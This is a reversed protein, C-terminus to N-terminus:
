QDFIAPDLNFTKIAHKLIDRTFEQRVTWRHGDTKLVITGWSAYTMWSCGEKKLQKQEAKTRDSGNTFFVFAPSVERLFAENATNLGHHPFKMIDADLDYLEALIGQGRGEVDATLLISCDGYRVMLMASLNNCNMIPEIREDPIRYATLTADGFPVTEETHMDIVPVGAADLADMVHKQIVVQREEYYNHPFFNFYAGIPFGRDLLAFIGGVHDAHPHTGFVYEVGEVGAEELMAAVQKTTTRDGVDVLMSHEGLTLLICDAGIMPTVRITLIEADADFPEADWEWAIEPAPASEAHGAAPLLALTLVAALLVAAAKRYLNMGM